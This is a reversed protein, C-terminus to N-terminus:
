YGYYGVHSVTLNDTGFYGIQSMVLLWPLLTDFQCIDMNLHNLVNKPKCISCVEPMYVNVRESLCKISM